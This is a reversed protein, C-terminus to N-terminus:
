SFVSLRAKSARKKRSGRTIKPALEKFRGIKRGSKDHWVRGELM